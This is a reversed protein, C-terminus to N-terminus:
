ADPFHTPKVIIKSTIVSLLKKVQVLKVLLAMQLQKQKVRGEADPEKYLTKSAKTWLVQHATIHHNTRSCQGM